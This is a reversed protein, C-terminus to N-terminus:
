IAQNGIDKRYHMGRFHIGENGTASYANGAAQGVTEGLGTVFLVRGGATVIKENRWATGGHHIIVDQYKGDLGFIEDGEIPKHPYGEAVLGVSLAAGGIKRISSARLNGEATSKLLEYVNNGARQMLPLVVQAEPDGFRVNYEIVVPNGNYEEALMLGIYIVGKYPMRWEQAGQITKEAIDAIKLEQEPTVISEPVPSYAGMGGTNPGKDNDLLRKHDQSYPLVKYNKGDTVVFVSVEPGTLREQIVVTEGATGFLKGGLMDSLVGMAEEDGKPLIVGKGGAPGDAKLVLEIAGRQRIVDEGIQYNNKDIIWSRPHPIYFEQMFSTAFAKSGELKAADASPGFVAYDELKDALGDILPQEPGIITLNVNRKEIYNKIQEHDSPGFPLNFGNDFSETGANGPAFSVIDVDNAIALGIAHERSGGGVILAEKV